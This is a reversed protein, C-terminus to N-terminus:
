YIISTKINSGCVEYSQTFSTGLSFDNWEILVFFKGKGLELTLVEGDPCPMKLSTYEAHVSDVLIKSFNEVIIEAKDSSCDTSVNEFAIVFNNQNTLFKTVTSEHFSLINM